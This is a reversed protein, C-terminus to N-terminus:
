NLPHEDNVLKSNFPKIVYFSSHTYSNLHFAVTKLLWTNKYGM